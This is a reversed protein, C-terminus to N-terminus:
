KTLMWAPKKLGAGKPGHGRQKEPIPARTRALAREAATTAEARAAAVSQRNKQRKRRGKM